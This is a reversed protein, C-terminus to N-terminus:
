DPLVTGRLRIAYTATYRIGAYLPDPLNQPRSVSRVSRCPTSGLWGDRGARKLFADNIRALEAAATETEAFSEVVVLAEETVLDIEVGGTVFTRVHRPPRPNPIGSEAPVDAFGERSALATIFFQVMVDDVDPQAILESM